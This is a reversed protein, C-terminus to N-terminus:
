RPTRARGTRAQVENQLAQGIAQRVADHAADYGARAQAIRPEACPHAAGIGCVGQIVKLTRAVPGFPYVTTGVVFGGTWDANLEWRHSEAWGRDVGDKFMGHGLEHALIFLIAAHSITHGGAVTIAVDTLATADVWVGGKYWYAISAPARTFRLVAASGLATRAVDFLKKIRAHAAPTDATGPRSV